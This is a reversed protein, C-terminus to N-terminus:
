DAIGTSASYLNAGEKMIEELTLGDYLYKYVESASEAAFASEYGNRIVATVAYEPSEFPAFSVFLAHNPKSKSEQATGTKGAVKVSLDKFSSKVSGDNVVAYMGKQIANWYIRNVDTLDNVLETKNKLVTKGDKDAIHDLLTLTTVKGGNALASVYRALHIPAFNNTGQGISSRIGLDDSIKPESEGIEIGTKQDLGFMSAYKKLASLTIAQNYGTTNGNGLRYGVEYFYYNCSDRLAKVIDEKGHSTKKWCKPGNEAKTFQTADHITETVGVVNESLAALGTIMKFTSGPASKAQTARNVLPAALNTNLSAYYRSDVKNAMKNNDYSPYSVMALVDGNNPDTVIISGSCPDLALQAPTIELKQIKSRMFEYASIRGQELRSVDEEDYKLVGQDFLLLCIENGRLKDDFILNRYVMKSFQVDDKLKDCIHDILMMYIEDTSYYDSGIDLKSLDMWNKSIAYQIFESLSIKPHKDDNYKKYIDDETDVAGKLLIKQKVLVDSYIYELYKGLSENVEKNTKKFEPDLAAKIERLASEFATQYKNYVSKELDTADDKQFHEVDIVNNNILAFYVEYIPIKIKSASEGKSGYSKSNVINQLLVGAIKNELVHYAAKQLNADITLYLDNGAIPDLTEDVSVVKNLNNVTVVQSGKQGALWTEYVQEIGSKGVYDTSNYSDYGDKEMEDIEETSIKGTYGLLHSFYISDNYVRYSDQNIEVNLGSLERANEKIAAVTEKSVQTAVRVQLYKPYNSYVAYRISMIKLAMETSYEDSINFMKSVHEMGHRLYEFVDEATAAKIEDEKIQNNGDYVTKKFRSLASGEVTFEFEKKKNIEIPFDTDLEDGNREILRILLAIQTNKEEDSISSSVDNIVVSYALENYALLVGNRDYINGRTSKIERTKTNKVVEDESQMGSEVIQLTFIRHVLVFFLFIYVISIPLLRSSFFNKLKELILDLM